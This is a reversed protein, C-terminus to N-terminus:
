VTAVVHPLLRVKKLHTARPTGKNDGFTYIQPRPYSQSQYVAASVISQQVTYTM